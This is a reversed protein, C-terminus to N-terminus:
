ENSKARLYRNLQKRYWKQSLILRLESLRHYKAATDLTLLANTHYKIAHKIIKTAQQQTKINNFLKPWHKFILPIIMEQNKKEYPGLLMSKSLAKMFYAENFKSKNSYFRALKAWAYDWSPQHAIAIKYEQEALKSYDSVKDNSTNDPQKKQQNHTLVEYYRAM